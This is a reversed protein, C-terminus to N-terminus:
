SAEGRGWEYMVESALREQALVVYEVGYSSRLVHVDKPNYTNVVYKGYRRATQLRNTDAELASVQAIQWDIDMVTMASAQYLLASLATDAEISVPRRLRNAQMLQWKLVREWENAAAAQEDTMQSPLVKVRVPNGTLVNVGAKIADHPSHDTVKHMYDYKNLDSPMKWENHWMADYALFAENRKRDQQCLKEALEKYKAIKM